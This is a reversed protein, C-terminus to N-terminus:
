TPAEGTMRRLILDIFKSAGNICEIVYGCPAVFSSIDFFYLLNKEVIGLHIMDLGSVIGIRIHSYKM